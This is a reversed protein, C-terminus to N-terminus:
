APDEYEWSGDESMIINCDFEVDIEESYPEVEDPEDYEPPDLNYDANINTASEVDKKVIESKRVESMITGKAADEDYHSIDAYGFGADYYEAVERVANEAVMLNDWTIYTITIEYVVNEGSINVDVQVSRDQPNRPDRAPLGLIKRVSDEMEAGCEYAADELNSDPRDTASTVATSGMVESTIDKVLEELNPYVESEDDFYKLYSEVYVDEGAKGIFEFLDKNKSACETLQREADEKSTAYFKGFCFFDDSEPGETGSSYQMLM